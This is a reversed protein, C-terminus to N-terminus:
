SLLVVIRCTLVQHKRQNIGWLIEPLREDRRAEGCASATIAEVVTRNPREVQGNARPTAVANVVHKIGMEVLFSAFVKSTIALDQDSVIRRPYGFEGFVWRLNEIAEASSLTRTPKAIANFPVARKKTRIYFDKAADM